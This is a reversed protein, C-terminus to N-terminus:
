DEVEEEKKGKEIVEPEAMAGEVEEVVEEAGAATVVAIMEDPDSLIQVKDPVALDRVFISDGISKLVSIDVVFREPLDQPLAEVEVQNIGSVLVGNFDKVAPAVGVLEVGVMTRLKESLSVAQFDVHLLKGTIFNRQKERVLTPYEKGDLDVTVLTSSSLHQLAKATSHLDLMVAIPQDIHRGYIVAPLQGQRRLTGVQKGKVSRRTAHLVVKEM